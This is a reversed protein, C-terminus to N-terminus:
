TRWKRHVEKWQQTENYLYLPQFFSSGAAAFFIASKWNADLLKIVQLPKAHNLNPNQPEPSSGDMTTTYVWGGMNGLWILM